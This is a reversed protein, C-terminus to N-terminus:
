SVDVSVALDTGSQRLTAQPRYGLAELEDRFTPWHRAGLQLLMRGDPSLFTRAQRVLQRYLGLGDAGTGIVQSERGRWGDQWDELPVYPVNATLVRIRGRLRPPVPDMLSGRHFHVNSARLRRRNREAWLLARRSTETAHVEVGSIASGIALAIPGCGTGVDVVPGPRESLARVAEKAITEALGRPVFVGRGVALEIGAFRVDATVTGLRPAAAAYARMRRPWARRILWGAATWEVEEISHRGNRAGLPPAVGALDLGRRVSGEVRAAGALDWVRRWDEIRAACMALDGIWSGYRHRGRMHLRTGQTALFVFLADPEPELFGNWGPRSRAWLERELAGIRAFPLPAGPIGWMLVIGLRDDYLYAVTRFLRWAGRDGLRFRWGTGRLVEQAAHADDPHVFLVMEHDAPHFGSHDNSDEHRENRDSPEPHDVPQGFEAERPEQGGPPDATPGRLVIAAIGRDAFLRGLETVLRQREPTMLM